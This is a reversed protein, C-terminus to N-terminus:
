ISPSKAQRQISVKIRKYPRVGKFAIAYQCSIWMDQPTDSGPITLLTTISSGPNLLSNFERPGEQTGWDRDAFTCYLSNENLDAVRFGKSGSNILSVTIGINESVDFVDRQPKLDLQFPLSKQELDNLIDMHSEVIKNVDFSASSGKRQSQAVVKIGLLPFPWRSETTDSDLDEQVDLPEVHISLDFGYPDQKPDLGGADHTYFVRSFGNTDKQIASSSFGELEPYSNKMSVVEQVVAKIAANYTTRLEQTSEGFAPSSVGIWLFILIFIKFKKILM